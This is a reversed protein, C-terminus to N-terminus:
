SHKPTGKTHLQTRQSRKKAGAIVMGTATPYQERPHQHHTRRAVITLITLMQQRRQTEQIREQGLRRVAITEQSITLTSPSLSIHTLKSRIQHQTRSKNYWTPYWITSPCVPILLKHKPEVSVYLTKLQGNPEPTSLIPVQFYIYIYQNKIYLLVFKCLADM